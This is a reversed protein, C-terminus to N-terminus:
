GADAQGSQYAWGVYDLGRTNLETAAGQLPERARDPDVTEPAEDIARAIFRQVMRDPKIRTDDGALMRFYDFLIGSKQGPIQRIATAAVELRDDTM